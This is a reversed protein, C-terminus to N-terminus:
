NVQRHSVGAVILTELGLVQQKQLALLQKEEDSGTGMVDAYQM